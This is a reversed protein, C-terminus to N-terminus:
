CGWYTIKLLNGSDASDLWVSMQSYAHSAQRQLQSSLASMVPFGRWYDWCAGSSKSVSDTPRTSSLREEERARRMDHYPIDETPVKAAVILQETKSAM